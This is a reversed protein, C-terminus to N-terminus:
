DCFFLRISAIKLSLDRVSLARLFVISSFITHYFPPSINRSKLPYIGAKSSPSSFAKPYTSSSVQFSSFHLSSLFLTCFRQPRHKRLLRYLFSFTRSFLTGSHNLNAIPPLFRTLQRRVRSTGAFMHINQRPHPFVYNQFFFYFM